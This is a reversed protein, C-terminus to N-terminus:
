RRSTCVATPDAAGREPAGQAGQAGTATRERRVIEEQLERLLRDEFTTRVTM